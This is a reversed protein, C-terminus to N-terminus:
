WKGKRHKASPIKERWSLQKVRVRNTFSFFLFWNCHSTIRLRNRKKTVTAAMEEEKASTPSRSTSQEEHNSHKDQSRMHFPWTLRYHNSGKNEATNQPCTRHMSHSRCTARPWVTDPAGLPLKRSFIQESSSKLVLIKPVNTTFNRAQRGRRPNEFM